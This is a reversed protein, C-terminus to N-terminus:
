LDRQNDTDSDFLFNMYGNLVACILSKKVRTRLGDRDEGDEYIEDDECSPSKRNVLFLEADCSELMQIMDRYRCAEGFGLMASQFRCSAPSLLGDGKLFLDIISSHGYFASLRVADLEMSITWGQMNRLCYEVLESFGETALVHVLSLNNRGICALQKFLTHNGPYECWIWSSMDIPQVVYSIEGNMFDKEDYGEDVLCYKVAASIRLVEDLETPSGGDRILKRFTDNLIDAM